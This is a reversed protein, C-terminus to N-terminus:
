FICHSFYDQGTVTRGTFKMQAVINAGQATTHLQLIRAVIVPHKHKHGVDLGEGIIGVIRLLDSLVDDLHGEVIESGTEVGLFAGDEDLTLDRFQGFQGGIQHVQDGDTTHLAVRRHLCLDLHAAKLTLTNRQAEEAIRDTLSGVDRQELRGRHGHTLVLLRHQLHCTFQHAAEILDICGHEHLRIDHQGLIQCGTTQGTRIALLLHRLAKAVADVEGVRSILYPLLHARHIGIRRMHVQIVRTMHLTVGHEGIKVGEGRILVKGLEPRLVLVQVFQLGVILTATQAVHLALLEQVLHEILEQLGHALTTM